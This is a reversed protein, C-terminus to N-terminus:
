SSHNNERILDLINNTEVINELPIDQMLKTLYDDIYELKGLLDLGGETISIRVLRRDETCRVRSVLNKECLRTILRSADSSKDLMRESLFNLNVVKPHQGRLIRLINYQQISIESSKLLERLKDSIWFHTFAINVALKQYENKFSKQKIAEELSM